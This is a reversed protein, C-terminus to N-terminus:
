VPRQMENLLRACEKWAEDWSGDASQTLYRVSPYWPCHDFAQLWYWQRARLNSLLLLTPIGLAGSIHATTNSITVVVDMAAVQAAFADLDVLSDISQDAILTVGRIGSVRDIEAAWDGYQLSVLARLHAHTAALIDELQVSKLDGVKPNISGWSLGVFLEDGAAHYRTRLKDRLVPNASLFGKRAPFNDISNRFAAGLEAMSMQFDFRDLDASNFAAHDGFRVSPFSRRLVPLLRVSCYVVVEEAVSILDPLMTLALVEDGIGQETWVLVSLGNLSEGQWRRPKDLPPRLNNERVHHRWNLEQWGESLRGSTLLAFGRNLHAEASNSDIEIIQDLHMIAGECEGVEVFSVALNGLVEANRPLLVNATQFAAQAEHPRSLRRLAVGLNNHFEGVDSKSAIARRYLQEAEVLKDRRALMMGKLNLAHSFSSDAAIARDLYEEAADSHDDARAYQALQYLASAQYQPLKALTQLVQTADDFRDSKRYASAAGLLYSYIAEHRGAAAILLALHGAVDRIVSVWDNPAVQAAYSLSTYWACRGDIDLWYWRRGLGSTAPLMCYSRVGLAGAFHAATNSSSIVVDMAAIQAAYADLDVLPDISADHIITANYATAILEREQTTDGYQLNVLRVGPLAFIPGWVSLPVSKEVAESVNSSKWALGVLMDQTGGQYDARLRKARERDPRLYAGNSSFADLSPRLVEAFAVLPAQVDIVSRAFEPVSEGFVEVDPFSRRFLPAMRASSLIGLRAVRTRLEGILTGYMVEDGPGQETCVLVSKDTLEEGRWEPIGVAVRRLAPRTLEKFRWSYCQWAEVLRGLNFLAEARHINHHPRNPWHKVGHRTLMELESNLGLRRVLGYLNLLAGEDKPNQHLAAEFQERALDFQGSSLLLLGLNNRFNAAKPNLKVAHRYHHEARELNNAQHYARGINFHADPSLPHVVVVRSLYDIASDFRGQQSEIVGLLTLANPNKPDVSLIRSAIDASERLRNQSFLQTANAILSALPQLSSKM